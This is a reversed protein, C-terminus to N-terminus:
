KMREVSIGDRKNNERCKSIAYDSVTLVTAIWAVGLFGFIEVVIFHEPLSVLLWCWVLGWIAGCVSGAMKM